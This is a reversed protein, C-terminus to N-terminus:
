KIFDYIANAVKDPAEENPVHGVKDFIVLQSNKIDQKFNYANEVHIL